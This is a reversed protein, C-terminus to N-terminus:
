EGVFLLGQEAGTEGLYILRELATAGGFPVASANGELGGGGVRGQQEVIWVEDGKEWRYDSEITCLHDGKNGSFPDADYFDTQM